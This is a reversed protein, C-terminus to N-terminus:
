KTDLPCEVIFQEGDRYSLYLTGQPKAIKALRQLKVIKDQLQAFPKHDFIPSERAIDWCQVFFDEVNGLWRGADLDLDLRPDVFGTLPTDFQM